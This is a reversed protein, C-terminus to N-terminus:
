CNEIDTHLHRAPPAFGSETPAEDGHSRASAWIVPRSRLRDEIVSFM